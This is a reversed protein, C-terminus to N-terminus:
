KSASAARQKKPAAAPADEIVEAAPAPAAAAKLDTEGIEGRGMRAAIDKIVSYTLEGFEKRVENHFTNSGAHNLKMYHSSHTNPKFVSEICADNYVKRIEAYRDQASTYTVEYETVQHLLMELNAKSVIYESESPHLIAHHAKHANYKAEAAAKNTLAVKWREKQLVMDFYAMIQPQGRWLAFYHERVSDSDMNDPKRKATKALAAAAALGSLQQQVAVWVTILGVTFSNIAMFLARQLIGQVYLSFGANFIAAAVCGLIATRTTQAGLFHNSWYLILVSAAVNAAIGVPDVYISAMVESSTYALPPTGDHLIPEM